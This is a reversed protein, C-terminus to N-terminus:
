PKEERRTAPSGAADAGDDDAGDRARQVETELVAQIEDYLRMFEPHSPSRPRVAPATFDGRVAGRAGLVVVRTGMLLAEILDHTIFIITKGTKAWLRGLEDQLDRRTIADLAAFPEDMLLIAPENALARAIQVRQKMGGSLQYPFKDAHGDLGVLALQAM